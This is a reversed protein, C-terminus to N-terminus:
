VQTYQTSSPYLLGISGSADLIRGV